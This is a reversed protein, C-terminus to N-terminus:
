TLPPLNQKNPTCHRNQIENTACRKECPNTFQETYVAHEGYSATRSLLQFANTAVVKQSQALWLPGRSNKAKTPGSRASLSLCNKAM